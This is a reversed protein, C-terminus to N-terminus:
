FCCTFFTTSAYEPPTAVLTQIGYKFFSYPIESTTVKTASRPCPSSKSSILCFAKFEPADLDIMPLKTLLKTSLYAKGAILAFANYKSLYGKDM